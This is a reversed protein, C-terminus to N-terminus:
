PHFEDDPSDNDMIIIRSVEKPVVPRYNPYVEAFTISKYVVPFRNKLWDPFWREKVAQWWDLPYRIPRFERGFLFGTVQVIYENMNQDLWVDVARDILHAALRQRYAFQIKKLTVTKM